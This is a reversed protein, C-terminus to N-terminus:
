DPRWPIDLHSAAVRSGLKTLTTNRVVLKLRVDDWDLFVPTVKKRENGSIDMVSLGLTEGENVSAYIQILRQFVGRAELTPANIIERIKDHVASLGELYERSAQLLEVTAPMEALIKKGFKKNEEFFERKSIMSLRTEYISAAKTGTRQTNYRVVHVALSSHQVHNRLAEMFRYSFRSDFQSAAAKKFEGKADEPNSACESLRQPAHDLYLRAATLLNVIRRNARAREEFFEEYTRDVYNSAACLAEQDLELFNSVLLDYTEELAFAAHLARYARHAELAEDDTIPVEPAWDIVDLRLIYSM